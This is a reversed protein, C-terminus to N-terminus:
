GGLPPELGAYGDNTPEIYSDPVFYGGDQDYSGTTDENYRILEARVRDRREMREELPTLDTYDKVMFTELVDMFRSGSYEAIDVGCEGLYFGNIFTWLPRAWDLIGRVSAYPPRHVGGRAM